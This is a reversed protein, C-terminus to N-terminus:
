RFRVRPKRPTALSPPPQPYLHDAFVLHSPVMLVLETTTHPARRFTVSELYFNGKIELERDDVEVVTDVAWNTSEGDASDLRKTTHGSVTYVLKWGARREEAIMKRALYNAQENTKIHDDKVIIPADFESDDLEHDIFEGRLKNRGARGHGARGYVIASTHRNTTDDDFKCDLVNTLGRQAGRERFIRFSPEQNANPRSLVFSGDAAAWLFLGALKYQEQLVEDWRRGLVVKLTQVVVSSTRGAASTKLSDITRQEVIANPSGQSEKILSNVIFQEMAPDAIGSQIQFKERVEAETLARVKAQQKAQAGTNKPEGPTEKAKTTTSLNRGSLKLRNTDNSTRLRHGKAETLGVIDLVKRTLAVYTKETLARDERVYADFVVSLYDRGKIEVITSAAGPIGRGYIIGTKTQVDNIFLKYRSKRPKIMDLLERATQASGIRMTFAGPQRLVSLQVEYQEAIKIIKGDIEIRVSDNKGGLADHEVPM